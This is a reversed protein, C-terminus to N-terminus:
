LLDKYTNVIKDRLSSEVRSDLLNEQHICADAVDGEFKANPVFKFKISEGTYHISLTGIGIDVSATSEGAKVREVLEDIIVMEGIESLRSLAHQDITTLM